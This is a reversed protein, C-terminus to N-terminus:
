WIELIVRKIMKNLVDEEFLEEFYNKLSNDIINLYNFIKEADKKHNDENTWDTPLYRVFYLENRSDSSNIYKYVGMEKLYEIEAKNIRKFFYNLNKIFLDASSRSFLRIATMRKNDIIEFDIRYVISPNYKYPLFTRTQISQDTNHSTRQWSHNQDMLDLLNNKFDNILTGETKFGIKEALIENILQSRNTRREYAIKDIQKVIEEMLMLSYMKNPM